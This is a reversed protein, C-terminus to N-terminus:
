SGIQLKITAHRGNESMITLREILNLLYREGLKTLAYIKRREGESAKYIMRADALKSITGYLTGPGISVTGQSLEEIKKMVGYGHLPEVLALLIYFTAESIPKDEWRGDKM